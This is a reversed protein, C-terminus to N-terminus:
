KKNSTYKFKEQQELYDEELMFAQYLQPTKNIQEVIKNALILNTEESWKIKEGTEKSITYLNKLFNNLVKIIKTEEKSYLQKKSLAEMITEIKNKVHNINFQEDGIRYITPNSPAVNYEKEFISEHDSKYKGREKEKQRKVFDTHDYAILYSSALYIYDEVNQATLKTELKKTVKEIEEIHKQKYLDINESLIPINLRKAEELHEKTIKNRNEVMIATPKTNRRSVLENFRQLCYKSFLNSPLLKDEFAASIIPNNNRDGTSYLDYPAGMLLEDDVVNGYIYTIADESRAYGPHINSTLTWCLYDKGIEKEETVGKNLKSAFDKTHVPLYFGEGQLEHIKVGDITDVIKTNNVDTINIKYEYVFLKKALNDFQSIGTNYVALKKQGEKTQLLELIFKICDEMHMGGFSQIQQLMLLQHLMKALEKMEENNDKKSLEDYILMFSSSKGNFFDISDINSSYKELWKNSDKINEFSLIQNFFQHLNIDKYMSYNPDNKNLNKLKEFLSNVLNKTYQEIDEKSTVGIKEGQFIKSMPIINQDFFENLNEIQNFLEKYERLVTCFNVFSLINLPENIRVTKFNKLSETKEWLNVITELGYQEFLENLNEILNPVEIYKIMQCINEIGFTKLIKEDLLIDNKLYLLCSIGVKNEIQKIINKNQYKQYFQEILLPNTYIQQNTIKPDLTLGNQLALQYLEESKALESDILNFYNGNEQILWKVITPNSFIVTGPLHQYDGTKMINDLTNCLKQKDIRSLAELIISEDLNCNQLLIVEPIDQILKVVIEKDEFIPFNFYQLSRNFHYMHKKPYDFKSDNNEESIEWDIINKQIEEKVKKFLNEDKEVCNRKMLYPFEEKLLTKEKYLLQFFIPNEFNKTFEEYFPELQENYNEEKMNELENKSIYSRIALEKQFEKKDKIYHYIMADIWNPNNLLQEANYPYIILLELKMKNNYGSDKFIKNMIDLDNRIKLSLPANYNKILYNGLSSIPLNHEKIILLFVNPDLIDSKLVFDFIERNNLLTPDRMIIKKFLQSNKLDIYNSLDNLSHDNETYLKLFEELEMENLENLEKSYNFFFSNKKHQEYKKKYLKIGKNM